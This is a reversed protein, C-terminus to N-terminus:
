RQTLLTLTCSSSTRYPLLRHCRNSSSLCIYNFPGTYQVNLFAHNRARFAPRAAFLFHIRFLFCFGLRHYACPHPVTECSPPHADRAKYAELERLAADLEKRSEDRERRSEDREARLRTERLEAEALDGVAREMKSRRQQAVTNTWAVIQDLPTLLGGSGERIKKLDEELAVVFQPNRKTRRGVMKLFKERKENEDFAFGLEGSDPNVFLTGAIKGAKKHAPGDSVNSTPIHAILCAVVTFNAAWWMCMHHFLSYDKAIESLAMAIAACHIINLQSSPVDISRVVTYGRPELVNV